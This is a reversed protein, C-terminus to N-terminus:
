GCWALPLPQPSRMINEGSLYIQEDCKIRDLNDADDVGRRRGGPDLPELVPLQQLGAHVHDGPFADSM